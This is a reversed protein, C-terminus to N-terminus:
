EQVHERGELGRQREDSSQRRRFIKDMLQQESRAVVKFWVPYAGYAQKQVYFWWIYITFVTLPVTAAVFIWWNAAVVL